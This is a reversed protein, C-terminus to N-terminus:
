RRISMMSGVSLVTSARIFSSRGAPTSTLILTSYSKLAPSERWMEQSGNKFWEVAGHEEINARLEELTGAMFSLEKVLSDAVGRKVEPVNKAIKSLKRQEAKRIKDKNIEM